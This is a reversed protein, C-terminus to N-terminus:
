KVIGFKVKNIVKWQGDVKATVHLFYVGQSAVGKFATIGDWVVQNTGVKGGETGAPANYSWIKEGRMNYVNVIIDADKTINYKIATQTLVTNPLSAAPRSIEIPGTSELAPAEIKFAQALTGSQSDDNTVTVDWQGITKGSINIRCTLKSSSEILVGEGIIDGEGTKSFKISAGSRFYNGAVAVTLSTETNIGKEPSVGTVTPAPYGIKFASPLTGSRGDSNTVTVDWLGATAGNLDFICTIKSTSAVVVDTATIDVQGTKSLKVSAGSVFNAGSLDTITVKENNNGSSPTIATVMPKFIVATFYISRLFGEGISFNTSSSVSLQRHRAIGYVAYNASSCRATGVSVAETVLQYNASTSAALAIQGSLLVMFITKCIKM